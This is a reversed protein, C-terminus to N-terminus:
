SPFVKVLLFQVAGLVVFALALGSLMDVGYHSGESMVSAIMLLNLLLIPLFWRRGRAMNAFLVALITHYSPFFVIGDTEGIKM